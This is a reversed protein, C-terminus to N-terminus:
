TRPVPTTHQTDPTPHLTYPVSDIPLRAVKGKVSAIDLSNDKYLQLINLFERYIHPEKKFREKIQAVYSYATGREQDGGSAPGPKAKIKRVPGGGEKRGMAGYEM